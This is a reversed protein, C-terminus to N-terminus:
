KLSSHIAAGPLTKSGVLDILAPLTGLLILIIIIWELLEMRSVSQRGQIDNVIDRLNGLKREIGKSLAKLLMATVAMEHIQALYNDSALKFSQEVREAILLSDLHIMNLRKASIESSERRFISFLNAGFGRRKSTEEEYLSMLARDLRFDIFRLELIQMNALELIDITEDPDEDFIIGSITSVFVLDNDSYTVVQQLTRKTENAGIPDTSAKLTKAIERGLIERTEDFSLARNMEHIAFVFHSSPNRYFEPNVIAPRIVRFVEEAVKTAAAILAPSNELDEAYRPLDEFSGDLPAIFELSLAGVEFFTAFVQFARPRNFIEIEIPQLGIRIPELSRNISQSVPRFKVAMDKWQKSVIELLKSPKIEFGLDYAVHIHLAGSKIKLDRATIGELNSLASPAPAPALKEASM